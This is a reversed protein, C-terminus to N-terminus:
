NYVKINAPAKGSRMFKNFEEHTFGKIPENIDGFMLVDDNTAFWTVHGVTVAIIIAESSYKEEALVSATYKLEKRIDVPIMSPSNLKGINMRDYLTNHRLLQEIGSPTIQFAQIMHGFGGKRLDCLIDLAKGTDIKIQTRGRPWITERPSRPPVSLTEVFLGHFGTRDLSVLHDITFEDPNMDRQKYVVIIYDNPSVVIRKVEDNDPVSYRVYLVGSDPMSILKNKGLVRDLFDYAKVFGNKDDAHMFTCYQDIGDRRLRFKCTQIEYKIVKNM